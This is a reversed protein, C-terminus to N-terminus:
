AGQDQELKDIAESGGHRLIIARVESDQLSLSNARM